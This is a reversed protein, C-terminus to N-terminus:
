SIDRRGGGGDMWEMKEELHGRYQLFSSVELVSVEQKGVSGSVTLSFLPLQQSVSCRACVYGDRTLRTSCPLAKWVVEKWHLQLSVPFLTMNLFPPLHHLQVLDDPTITSM